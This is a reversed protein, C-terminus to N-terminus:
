RLSKSPSRQWVFIPFDSVEKIQEIHPGYLSELFRHAKVHSTLSCKVKELPNLLFVGIKDQIVNWPFTNTLLVVVEIM